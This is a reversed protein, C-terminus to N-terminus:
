LITSHTPHSPVKLPCGAWGGQLSCPCRCGSWPAQLGDLRAQLTELPPAEVAERPLRHWPKVVGM